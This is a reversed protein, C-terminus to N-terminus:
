RGGNLWQLLPAAFSSSPTGNEGSSSRESMGTGSPAQLSSVLTPETDPRSPLRGTLMAVPPAAVYNQLRWQYLRRPPQPRKNRSTDKGTEASKLLSNQKVRRQEEQSEVRLMSSYLLM